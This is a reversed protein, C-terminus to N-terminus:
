ISLISLYAGEYAGIRGIHGLIGGYEKIHGLISWYKREYVGIHM